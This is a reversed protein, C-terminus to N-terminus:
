FQWANGHGLNVKVHYISLRIYAGKLVTSTLCSRLTGINQSRFSDRADERTETLCAQAAIIQARRQRYRNEEKYGSTKAICWQERMRRGMTYASSRRSEDLRTGFSVHNEEMM